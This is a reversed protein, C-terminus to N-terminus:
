NAQNPAYQNTSRKLSGAKPKMSIRQQNEIKLIM